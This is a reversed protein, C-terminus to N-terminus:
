HLNIPGSGLTEKIQKVNLTPQAVTRLEALFYNQVGPTKLYEAVFVPNIEDRLPIRTVQRAINFGAERNSAVAVEGIRGVCSM